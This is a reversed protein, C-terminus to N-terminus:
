IARAESVTFVSVADRMRVAEAELADAVSAVEQVLQANQQTLGDIRTIATSVQEVGTKQEGAAQDIELVALSVRAIAHQAAEIAAGTEGALSSGTGVKEVAVRILEKIEGAAKASRQALARVETAVVAFGRGGDGAHAAEVAANLALINTQFAISEIVAIIESVQASADAIEGMTRMMKSMAACGVQTVQTAEEALMRANSAHEATERITVTIEEMSAATEQLSAAQGDTRSSLSRNGENIERAATAVNDSTTQIDKISIRLSDRMKKIASFLSNEDNPRVTVAASLDGGAIQTAVRVAEGPDGGLMRQVGRTSWSVCLTLVLAIALTIFTSQALSHVFAADIDDVYVSTVIIWGWPEYRQVYGILPSPTAKGLHPWQYNLYGGGSQNSIATMEDFLALGNSNRYGRMSHGVAGPKFPHMLMIEDFSYVLFYGEASYRMGKLRDLAQQQADHEGLKGTEALSAYEGIVSAALTTVERLNQRREEIRIDRAHWADLLSVLILAVLSVVLPLWLRRSFTMLKLELFYIECGSV